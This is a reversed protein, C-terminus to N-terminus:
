NRCRECEEVSLLRIGTEEANSLLEQLKKRAYFLRSMVTGKSVKLTESIQEYSFGEVDRLLIIARHEPTLKKLGNSVRTADERHELKDSPLERVVCSEESPLEDIPLTESQRTHKRHVDISLNYVIRYLWSYFSPEGKFSQLSLYAKVFAEQTIDEADESSRTVQYAIALCRKQYREFLIKYADKNGGKTLTVLQGDDLDDLSEEKGFWRKKAVAGATSLIRM